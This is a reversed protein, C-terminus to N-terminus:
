RLQAARAETEQQQKTIQNDLKVYGFWWHALLGILMGGVAFASWPFEPALTVNIIILGASVLLTIIGHVVVGTTANEHAMAREAAEYDHLTIHATSM